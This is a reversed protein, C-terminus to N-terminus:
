RLLRRRAAFTRLTVHQVDPLPDQSLFLFINVKMSQRQCCSTRRRAVPTQTAAVVDKQNKNKEAVLQLAAGSILDGGGRVSPPWRSDM